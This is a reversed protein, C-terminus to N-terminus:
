EVGSGSTKTLMKFFRRHNPHFPFVELFHDLTVTDLIFVFDSVDVTM